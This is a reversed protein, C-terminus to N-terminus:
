QQILLLCNPRSRWRPNCLGPFKCFEKVLQRDTQSCNDELWGLYCYSGKKELLYCKQLQKSFKLRSNLSTKKKKKLWLEIQKAAIEKWGAWIVIAVKRKVCVNVGVKKKEDVYECM